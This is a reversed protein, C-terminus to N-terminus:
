FNFNHTEEGLGSFPFFLSFSFFFSLLISLACFPDCTKAVSYVEKENKFKKHKKLLSFIHESRSTRQERQDM